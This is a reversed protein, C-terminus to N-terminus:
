SCQVLAFCAACDVSRRCASVSLVTMCCFVSLVYQVGGVQWRAREGALGAVLKEARALKGELDALEAELTAKRSMSEEYRSRHHTVAAPSASPSAIM